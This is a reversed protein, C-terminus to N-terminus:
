HIDYKNLVERNSEEIGAIIRAKYERAYIEAADINTTFAIFVTSLVMILVM